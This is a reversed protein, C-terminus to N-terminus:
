TEPSTDAPETGPWTSSIANVIDLWEQNVEGRLLRTQRKRLADARRQRLLLKAYEVGSLNEYWGKKYAAVREYNADVYAKNKAIVKERNAVYYDARYARVRDPNEARWAAARALIQEKHARYYARGRERKRERWEPDAQLRQHRLRDRERRREAPTM